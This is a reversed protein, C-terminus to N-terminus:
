FDCSFRMMQKELRKSEKCRCDLDRLYRSIFHCDWSDSNGGDMNEALRLAQTAYVRASDMDGGSLEHWIAMNFHAEMRRARNRHLLQGKWLQYAGNWNGERVYVDADRMDINAGAYYPFDLPKWHPIMALLPLRVAEFHLADKLEWDSPIYDWSLEQVEIITDSSVLYDPRYLKVVSFVKGTFFPYEVREIAFAALEVSVLMDVGLRHCLSGVQHPELERSDYDLSAEPSLLTDYVVVEDFFNADALEQALSDVLLKADALILDPHHSVGARPQNNVVAVRRVGDPFTIRSPTLREVTIWKVTSCSVALILVMVCVATGGLQSKRLKM